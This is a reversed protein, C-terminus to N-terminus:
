NRGAALLATAIMCGAAMCGGVVAPMSWIPWPPGLLYPAFGVACGAAAGLGLTGLAIEIRRV